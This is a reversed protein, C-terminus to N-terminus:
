GSTHAHDGTELDAGHPGLTDAESPTPSWVRMVGNDVDWSRYPWAAQTFLSFFLPRTYADVSEAHASSASAVSHKAIGM